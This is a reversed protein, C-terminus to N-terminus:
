RNLLIETSVDFFSSLAKLEIDTVFRTGSEIKQIANKGLNIDYDQLEDALQRQSIGKETRLRAIMKGCLNLSKDPNKNKFM